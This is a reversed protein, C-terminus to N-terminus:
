TRQAMRARPQDLQPQGFGLDLLRSLWSKRPKPPEPLMEVVNLQITPCRADNHQFGRFEFVENAWLPIRPDDIPKCVSGEIRVPKQSREAERINGWAEETIEDRLDSLHIQRAHGCHSYRALLGGNKSQEFRAWFDRGRPKDSILFHRDCGPAIEFKGASISLVYVPSLEFCLWEEGKDDECLWEEWGRPPPHPLPQALQHALKRAEAANFFDNM